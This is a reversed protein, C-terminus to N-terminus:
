GRARCTWSVVTKLDAVRRRYQRGAEARSPVALQVELDGGPTSQPDRCLFTYVCSPTCLSPRSGHRDRGDIDLQLLDFWVGSEWRSKASCRHECCHSAENRSERRGRASCRNTRHGEGFLRNGAIERPVAPRAAIRPKAGSVEAGVATYRGACGWGASDRGAPGDGASRWSASIM